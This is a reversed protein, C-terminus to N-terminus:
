FKCSPLIKFISSHIFLFFSSSVHFFSTITFHSVLVYTLILLYGCSDWGLWLQWSIHIHMHPPTAPPYTHAFLWCSVQILHATGQLSQSGSGGCYHYLCLTMNERSYSWQTEADSYMITIFFYKRMAHGSATWSKWSHSPHRKQQQTHIEQIWNGEQHSPQPVKKRRMYHQGRYM